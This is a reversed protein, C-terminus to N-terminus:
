KRVCHAVDQLARLTDGVRVIIRDAPLMDPKVEIVAGAGRHLASELYNHGDYHDGRLAFFLDGDSITRSDTSVGAIPGPGESLLEGKTAELVMDL